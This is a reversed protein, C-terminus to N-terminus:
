VVRWYSGQEGDMHELRSLLEGERWLEVPGSPAQRAIMALAEAISKANLGPARVQGDDGGAFVVRYQPMLLLGSLRCRGRGKGQRGM